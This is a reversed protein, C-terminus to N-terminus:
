CHSRYSCPALLAPCARPYAAARQTPLSRPRPPPPPPPVLAPPHCPPSRVKRATAFNFMGGTLRLVDGPQFAAVEEGWLQLGVAATHDACLALSVPPHGPTERAPAKELLIVQTNVHPAHGPRLDVVRALKPAGPGPAPPPAGGAGSSRGSVASAM